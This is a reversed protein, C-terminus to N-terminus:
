GTKPAVPFWFAPVGSDIILFNEILLLSHPILTESIEKFGRFSFTSLSEAGPTDLLTPDVDSCRGGLGSLCERKKRARWSKWVGRREWPSGPMPFFGSTLNEDASFQQSLHPM